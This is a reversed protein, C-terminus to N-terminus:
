AYFKTLGRKGKSPLSAKDNPKGKMEEVNCADLETMEITNVTCILKM